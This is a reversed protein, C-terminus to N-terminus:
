NTWGPEARVTFAAPDLVGLPRGAVSVEWGDAVRSLETEGPHDRFWALWEAREEPTVADLLAAVLGVLRRADVFPLDAHGGPPGSAPNM